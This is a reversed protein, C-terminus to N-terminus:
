KFMEYEFTYKAEGVQRESADKFTSVLTFPFGDSDYTYINKTTLFSGNDYSVKSELVENASYRDLGGEIGIVYKLSANFFRNKKTGYKIDEIVLGQGFDSTTKIINHNAYTYKVLNVVIGSQTEHTESVQDGDYLYGTTITKDPFTTTAKTPRGNTFSITIKAPGIEMASLDKGDYTYTRTGYTEKITKLRRQNDYTYTTFSTTGGQVQIARVLLKVPLSEEQVEKYKKCSSLSLMVMSALLTMRM